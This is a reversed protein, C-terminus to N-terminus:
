PGTTEEQKKPYVIEAAKKLSKIYKDALERQRSQTLQEIIGEKADELSTVSADEHDTVTIIHYGFRTEVVESVDGTKMGFAADSFPKVMQGKPFFKLDGGGAGSPCSSNEKALAAFDGGAKIQSLLEEAKAKATAKSENPDTNPDSTDPTILIHSARVREPKEYRRKNKVYYDNADEQTIDLKGALETEMLMQYGLGKEFDMTEKWEEFTQGYAAVLAKFDDVSLPPNQKEAIKKIQAIIDDETVVIGAEKIKENLLAKVIMNGLAQVMFREKNQEIAGPPLGGGRKAMRELQPQIEKEVESQRIEVGNVTVM